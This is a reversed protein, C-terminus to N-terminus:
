KPEDVPLIFGAERSSYYEADEVGIPQVIRPTGDDEHPALEILVGGKVPTKTLADLGGLLVNLDDRTLFIQEKGQPPKPGEEMATVACEAMTQPYKAHQNDRKLITCNSEGGSKVRDLKNLLTQVNRRSLYVKHAM